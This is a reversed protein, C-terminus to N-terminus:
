LQIYNVHDDPAAQGISQLLSTATAQCGALEMLALAGLMEDNALIADTSQDGKAASQVNQPEKSKAQLELVARKKKPIFNESYDDSDTSVTAQSQEDDAADLEQRLKRARLRVAGGGYTRKKKNSSNESSLCNTNEKLLSQSPTSKRTSSTSRDRRVGASPHENCHRNAHTFRNQCGEAVCIFPKEGTHLRQHTRLQGSQAFARGCGAHDCIYPREGTHTRIHAQLSKERPFCRSCYKCKIATAPSNASEQIMSTIDDLRPRGRRVGYADGESNLDVASASQDAFPSSCLSRSPSVPSLHVSTEDQTWGPWPYAPPLPSSMISVVPDAQFNSQETTSMLPVSDVLSKISSSSAPTSIYQVDKSKPFVPSSSPSPLCLYAKAKKGQNDVSDSNVILKNGNVRGSFVIVTRKTNEM